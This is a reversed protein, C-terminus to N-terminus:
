RAGSDPHRLRNMEQRFDDPADATVAALEELVKQREATMDPGSLTKALELGVVPLGSRNSHRWIDRLIDRAEAVHGTARLWQAMNYRVLWRRIRGEGLRQVLAHDQEILGPALPSFDAHGCRGEQHFTLLNDLGIQLPTSYGIGLSGIAQGTAVILAPPPATDVRCFITLMHLYSIGAFEPNREATLEAAQLASNAQRHTLLDEAYDSWARLSHPHNLASVQLLLRNDSWLLSRQWVVAALLAIYLGALGALLARRWPWAALVPLAAILLGASPLYNRHEFFLELPIFTSELLLGGLYFLLGFSVAWWRPSGALALALGALAALMVLAPLTTWPALLGHSVPFDDHFLGMTTVDPLLLNGIYTWVVRPQSLLREQLTFDRTLYSDLLGAPPHLALLAGALLLLLALVQTLRPTNWPVTAQFRFFFLEILVIWALANIGSEKGLLALPLLVLLALGIGAWGGRRGEQLAERGATYALCSALSFFTAVQTMRQVIYLVTSIHMPLLLWWATVLAALLAPAIRDGAPARLRFLRALLLYLLLGCALHLGLNTAKLAWTSFLGLAHNAAFTLMSASRGLIGSANGLILERYPANEPTFHFFGGLNSEDDVMWGGGLGPWYLLTVLLLTSFMVLWPRYEPRRQNM